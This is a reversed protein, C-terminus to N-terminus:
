SEDSNEGGRNRAAESLTCPLAADDVAARLIEGVSWAQAICGQPRFPVEADFIESITGLGAQRLHPELRRIIARAEERGREGRVRVLATIYPGLLWSWVTGQHYVRDREAPGGGYHPAYDPEDPALSRLGNPTLLQSEVKELIREARKGDVLAWPLGIAMVQNPRISGDRADGELTDYLCGRAENWFLEEFRERVSRAREEAAGAGAEDGAKRRLTALVHLANFWLANIEVQKGDRPTIVEDGVKADMWTLQVGPAGARILGDADVRIGHRTGREHWAVIEELLPLLRVGFSWDGTAEVTRHVALFYWLTADVTNYEPVEGQDPFRNPLMGESVVSAFEMVIEKAEDYRGTTLCLGPLAIMTDRGWDGFWHYGAIVSRGAKGRRVIFQDAALHLRAVLPDSGPGPLLATRRREEAAVLPPGDDASRAPETTALLTLPEGRRLEIRLTGPTFLDERDDLGRDTEREYVFDYYWDPVPDFRAGKALIHLAAAGDYMQLTLRQGDFQAERNAAQNAHALSHYDRTALFPRIELTVGERDGELSYVVITTNEGHVAVVRRRLIWGDGAYECEPFLGLRFSRLLRWGDPHITGPFRNAGLEYRREGDILAEDFKSLLVIRGLPPNLAPVLLGHYRRSNAGSVTSGAWGGIGNTELWELQLLEDFSRDATSILIEELPPSEPSAVAAARAAQQNTMHVM